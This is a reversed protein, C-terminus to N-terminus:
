IAEYTVFDAYRASWHGTKMGSRSTQQQVLLENGVRKTMLVVATLKVTVTMILYDNSENENESDASGACEDAGALPYDEPIAEGCKTYYHATIRRIKDGKKGKIEQM